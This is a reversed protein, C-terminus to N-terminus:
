SRAKRAKGSRNEFCGASDVGCHDLVAKGRDKASKGRRMLYGFKVAPIHAGYRRKNRHRVCSM